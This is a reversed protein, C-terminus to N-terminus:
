IRKIAGAGTIATIAHPPHGAYSIAGRGDVVASLSERAFLKLHGSGDLEADASRSALRVADVVGPGALLITLHQAKGSAVIDGSGTLKLQVASENLRDARVDAAGSNVLNALSKCFVTVVPTRGHQGLKGHIYLTGHDVSTTLLEPRSQVVVAQRADRAVFVTAFGSVRVATFPALRRVTGRPLAAAVQRAPPAARKSQAPTKAALPNAGSIFILSAVVLFTAKKM